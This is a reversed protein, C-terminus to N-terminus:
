GRTGAPVGGSYTWRMLDSVKGTPAFKALVATMAALEKQGKFKFSVVGSFCKVADM